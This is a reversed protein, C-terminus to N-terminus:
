HRIDDIDELNMSNLKSEVQAYIIINKYGRQQLDAEFLLAKSNLYSERMQLKQWNDGAMLEAEITTPTIRRRAIVFPEVAPLKRRPKDLQYAVLEM